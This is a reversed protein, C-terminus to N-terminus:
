AAHFLQKSSSALRVELPEGDASKLKKMAPELADRWRHAEILKKKEAPIYCTPGLMVRKPDVKLKKKAEPKQAAMNIQLPLFVNRLCEAM